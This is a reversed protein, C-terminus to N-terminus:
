IKVSPPFLRYQTGPFSVIVKKKKGLWVQSEWLRLTEKIPDWATFTHWSFFVPITKVASKKFCVSPISMYAQMTKNPPKTFVVGNLKADRPILELCKSWSTHLSTNGDYCASCVM